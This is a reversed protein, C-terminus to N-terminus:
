PSEASTSDGEKKYMPDEWLTELLELDESRGYDLFRGVIRLSLPDREENQIFVTSTCSELPALYRDWGPAGALKNHRATCHHVKVSGAIKYYTGSFPDVCYLWSKGKHSQIAAKIPNM